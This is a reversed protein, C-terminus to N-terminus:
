CDVINFLQCCLEIGEADTIDSLPLCLIGATYGPFDGTPDAAVNFSHSVKGVAKIEGKERKMNQPLEIGEM